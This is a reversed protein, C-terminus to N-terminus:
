CAGRTNVHHEGTHKAHMVHTGETSLPALHNFLDLHDTTEGDHNRSRYGDGLCGLVPVSLGGRLLSRCRGLCPGPEVARATMRAIFGRPLNPTQDRRTSAM